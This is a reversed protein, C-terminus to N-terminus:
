GAVGRAVAFVGFGILALGAIRNIWLMATDTFLRRLWEVTETLVVWWVLSGAFVGATLLTAGAYDTRMGLTGLGVFIAAFTLITTPNSLTLVYTSAFAAFLGSAPPTLAQGPDRQPRPALLARVGLWLLVVGGGLAVWRAQAVLADALATLGFAAIGGYCGDALAVGFGSALGLLRGSRLVRQICLLAIPGVPAAVALGIAMGKGFLLLM